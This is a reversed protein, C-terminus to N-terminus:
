QKAEWVRVNVLFRGFGDRGTYWGAESIARWARYRAAGITPAEFVETSFGYVRVNWRRATM